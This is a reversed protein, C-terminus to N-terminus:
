CRVCRRYRRTRSIRSRARPSERARRRRRRTGGERMARGCARRHCGALGFLAFAREGRLGPSAYTERSAGAGELTSRWRLAVAEDGVGCPKTELVDCAESALAVYREYARARRCRRRRVGRARRQARAHACLESFGGRERPRIGRARARARALRRVTRVGDTERDRRARDGLRSRRARTPVLRHTPAGVVSEIGSRM